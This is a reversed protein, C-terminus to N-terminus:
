KRKARIPFARGPPAVIRRKARAHWFSKVFGIVERSDPKREWRNHPFLPLQDYSHNM